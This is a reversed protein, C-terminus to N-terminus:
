KKSKPFEEKTLVKDKNKDMLEFHRQWKKMKSENVGKFYEEKSLKGDKNTDKEAILGKYDYRKAASLTSSFMFIVLIYLSFQAYYHKATLMLKVKNKIQLRHCKEFHFFQKDEGVL